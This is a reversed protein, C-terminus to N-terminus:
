YADQHAVHTWFETASALEELGRLRTGVNTSVNTYSCARVGEGNNGCEANLRTGERAKRKDGRRKDGRRSSDSEGGGEGGRADVRLM